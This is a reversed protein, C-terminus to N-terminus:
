MHKVFLTFLMQFILVFGLFYPMDKFCWKAHVRIAAYQAPTAYEFVHASFAMVAREYPEFKDLTNFLNCLDSRRFVCGCPVYLGRLMELDLRSFVDCVILVLEGFEERSVHQYLVVRGDHLETELMAAAM